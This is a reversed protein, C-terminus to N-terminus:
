WDKRQTLTNERLALYFLGCYSALDYLRDEVGENLVLNPNKADNELAQFHKEMLVMFVQPMSLNLREATKRFNALGDTLNGAYDSNKKKHQRLIKGFFEQMGWYAQEMTLTKSPLSESSSTTSDPM